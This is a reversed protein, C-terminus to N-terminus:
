CFPSSLSLSLVAHPVPLPALPRIICARDRWSAREAASVQERARVGPFIASLLVRILFWLGHGTADSRTGRGRRTPIVWDFEDYSARSFTRALLHVFVSHGVYPCARQTSNFLLFPPPLSNYPLHFLSAIEIISSILATARHDISVVVRLM